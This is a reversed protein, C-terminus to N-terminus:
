ADADGLPAGRALGDDEGVAAEVQEVDAVDGQEFVAAAEAGLEDEAEVGVGGDAAELAWRAGDDAFALAGADHGSEGGDIGDHEKFLVRREFQDAGELGVNQDLAAVVGDLGDDAVFVDDGGTAPDLDDGGDFAEGGGVDDFFEGRVVCGALLVLTIM